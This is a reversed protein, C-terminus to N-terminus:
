KTVTLGLRSEKTAILETVWSKRGSHVYAGAVDGQLKFNFHSGKDSVNSIEAIAGEGFQGGTEKGFVVIDGDRLEGVKRDLKAWGKAVKEEDLFNAKTAPTALKFEGNNMIGKSRGYADMLHVHNTCRGGVRYVGGEAVGYNNTGKTIVVIDNRRVKKSEEIASERELREKKRNFESIEDQTAMRVNRRHKYGADRGNVHKVRFGQNGRDNREIEVVDGTRSYENGENKTIVVIDGAKANDVMKELAETETVIEMDEIRISSRRDNTVSSAGYNMEGYKANLKIIEGKIFSHAGNHERTADYGTVKAYKGVSFKEARMKNEFAEIDADTAIELRSMFLWRTDNDRLTKVRVTEDYEKNGLLEVIDGKQITSSTIGDLNKIVAKMGEVLPSYEVFRQTTYFDLEPQREKTVGNSKNTGMLKGNEIFYVVGYDSQATEEFQLKKTEMEKLASAGVYVKTM